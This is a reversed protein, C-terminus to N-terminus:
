RCTRGHGECTCRCLGPLHDRLVPLKIPLVPLGILLATLLDSGGLQWVEAQEQLEGEGGLFSMSNMRSWSPAVM